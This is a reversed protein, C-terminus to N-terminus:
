KIPAFITQFPVFAAYGNNIFIILYFIIGSVAVCSLVALFKNAIVKQVIYPIMIIETTDLLTALRFGFTPYAYFVLAVLAGTFYVNFISDMFQREKSTMRRERIWIYFIIVIWELIMVWINSNSHQTYVDSTIYVGGHTLKNVLGPNLQFFKEVILSIVFFLSTKSFSIEKDIYNAFLYAAVFIFSGKHISSALLVVILFPIPRKERIYKISYLLIVSALSSRIQGLDRVWYFRAYYYLLCLDGLGPQVNKYLFIFLLGLTLVAFCFEFAFFDLHCFHAINNLLVYGKEFDHNGTLYYQYYTGYDYGVNYRIGAVVALIAASIFLGYNHKSLFDIMSLCALIIFLIIFLSM